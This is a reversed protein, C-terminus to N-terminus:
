KSIRASARSLPALGYHMVGRKDIAREADYDDTRESSRAHPPALM